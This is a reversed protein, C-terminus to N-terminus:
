SSTLPSYKLENTPVQKLRELSGFATTIQKHLANSIESEPAISNFFFNLNWLQSACDKLPSGLPAGRLVDELSMDEYKTDTTPHSICALVLSSGKVLVNVKSAYRAHIQDHHYSVNEESFHPVLADIEFNLEPLPFTVATVPM